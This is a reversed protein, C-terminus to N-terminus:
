QVNTFVNILSWPRTWDGEGRQAEEEKAGKRGFIPFLNREAGIRGGSPSFGERRKQLGPRKGPSGRQRMVQKVGSLAAGDIRRFFCLRKWLRFLSQEFTLKKRRLVPM